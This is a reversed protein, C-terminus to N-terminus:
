KGLKSSSELDYVDCIVEVLVLFLSKDMGLGDNLEYTYDVGYANAFLTFGEPANKIKEVLTNKQEKSLADPILISVHSECICFVILGSKVMEEYQQFEEVATGEPCYKQYAEKASDKHYKVRFFDFVGEKDIIAIEEHYNFFPKSSCAGDPDKIYVKEKSSTKIIEKTAIILKNLDLQYVDELSNIKENKQLLIILLLKMILTDNINTNSALDKRLQQKERYKTILRYALMFDNKFYKSSITLLDSAIIPNQKVEKLFACLGDSDIGSENIFVKSHLNCLLEIEDPALNPMWKSIAEYFVQKNQPYNDLYAIYPHLREPLLNFVDIDRYYFILNSLLEGKAFEEGINPLNLLGEIFDLDFSYIFEDFASNILNKSESNITSFLFSKINNNRTLLKFTENQNNSMTELTKDVFSEPIEIDVFGSVYSVFIFFEELTLIGKFSDDWNANQFYEGHIFDNLYEVNNSSLCYKIISYPNDSNMIIPKITSEM